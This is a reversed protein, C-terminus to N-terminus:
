GPEVASELTEEEAEAGGYGDAPDVVGIPRGGIPDWAPSAEGGLLVRAAARAGALKAAGDADTADCARVLDRLALRALTERHGADVASQEAIARRGEEFGAREESAQLAALLGRQQLGLSPVAFLAASRLLRSLLDRM